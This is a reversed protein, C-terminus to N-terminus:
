HRLRRCFCHARELEPTAVLCCWVAQFLDAALCATLSQLVVQLVPFLRPKFKVLRNRRAPSSPTWTFALPCCAPRQSPRLLDSYRIGHEAIQASAWGSQITPAVLAAYILCASKPWAIIRRRARVPQHFYACICRYKNSQIQLYLCRCWDLRLKSRRRMTVLMLHATTIRWRTM